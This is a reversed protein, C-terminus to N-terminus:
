NCVQRILVDFIKRGVQKAYKKQHDKDTQNSIFESAKNQKANLPTPKDKYDHTKIQIDKYGQQAELFGLNQPHEPISM